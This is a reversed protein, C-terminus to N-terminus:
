SKVMLWFQVPGPCDKCCQRLFDLQAFAEDTELMEKKDTVSKQGVVCGKIIPRIANAQLVFFFLSFRLTGRCEMM